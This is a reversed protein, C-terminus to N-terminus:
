RPSVDRLGLEELRELLPGVLRTWSAEEGYVRLGARDEPSTAVARDILDALVGVDDGTAVAPHAVCVPLSTSVPPVGSALYENLKMPSAVAMTKDLHYPMLGVTFSRVYKAVQGSPLGPVHVVNPLSALSALDDESGDIAPGVLVFRYEPRAEALERLLGFNILPRLAGHFGIVPADGLDVREGYPSFLNPDVGNEVLVMDQRESSHRELMTPNSVIVVQAEEMLPRHHYRVTREEPFGVEDPDYITLDDLIDYVVVPDEFREMMTRTPAFHTYVIVDRAPTSALSSTITVRGDV